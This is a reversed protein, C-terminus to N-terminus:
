VGMGYVADQVADMHEISISALQHILEMRKRKVQLIQLREQADEVHESERPGPAATQAAATLGHLCDQAAVVAAADHLVVLEDHRKRKGTPAPAHDNGDCSSAAHDNGYDDDTDSGRGLLHRTYGTPAPLGLQLCRAATRCRMRDIFRAEATEVDVGPAVVAADCWVPACAASLLSTTQPRLYVRPDLGRLSDVMRGKVSCRRAFGFKFVHGQTDAACLDIGRAHLKAVEADTFEAHDAQLAGISDYRFVRYFYLVSAEARKLLTDATCRPRPGNAALDDCLAQVRAALVAEQLRRAEAAEAAADLVDEAAAV